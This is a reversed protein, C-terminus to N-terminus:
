EDAADSTYLLCNSYHEGYTNDIYSKLEILVKDEDYKYDIQKKM